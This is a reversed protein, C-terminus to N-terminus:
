GLGDPTADADLQAQADRAVIPQFVAILAAGFIFGSRMSLALLIGFLLVKQAAIRPVAFSSVIFLFIRQQCLLAFYEVGM